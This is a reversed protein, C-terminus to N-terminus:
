ENKVGQANIFNQKKTIFIFNLSLGLLVIYNVIFKDRHRMATGANSVGWAFIFASLIALLLGVVIFSKANGKQSIKLAKFSYVYSLFYFMASFVFAIIDNLGRWYWPLPSTIFYFIRIPSNILLDTFSNVEGGVEYASGGDQALTTRRTIDNVDEIDGFKGLFTESYQNFFVMFIIIFISAAMTSNFNLKFKRERNNCLIFVLIYTVANAIVGSHFISGLLVFVISLVFYILHNNKWWKVFYLLSAALLFIMLSERLLIVSTILYNPIFAIIALMLLKIHYTINFHEFIKMVILITSISLLLNVYQAVIRQDAALSYIVGIFFSYPNDMIGFNPFNLASSHFMETDNGSGPLIFIHRGYLDLLLLLMRGCFAVVLLALVNKDGKAVRYLALYVFISNILVVIIGISENMQTFPSILSFFVCEIFLLGYVYWM